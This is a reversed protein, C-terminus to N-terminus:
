DEMVSRNHTKRKFTPTGGGGRRRRRRIRRRRRRRRMSVLAVNKPIREEMM